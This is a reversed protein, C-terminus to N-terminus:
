FPPMDDDIPSDFDINPESAGNVASDQSDSSDVPLNVSNEPQAVTSNSIENSGQGGVFQVNNAVVEVVSKRQGDNTEYTRHQLRGSIIAQRGKKLYQSCTEALRGWTVINFFNPPQDEFQEGVKKRPRNNAISFNTVALGSPTYKLEPDRTLRGVLVVINLDSFAM